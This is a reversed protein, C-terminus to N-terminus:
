SRDVRNEYEVEAEALATHAGYSWQVPKGSEYVLGKDVFTAFVRVIDAEYGPDLTLYPNEWDGFVGLRRFSQRQIDIFKRAFEEARTRIEAPSLGKAEKVVKFEIPLGHCDWGPVYPTHFGAMTKSKIVLDIMLRVNNKAAAEMMRQAGALNSAMPKEVLCHLGREAAM